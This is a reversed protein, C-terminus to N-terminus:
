RQPLRVCARAAELVTDAILQHGAENPHIGDLCMLSPYNRQALFTDRLDLLPCGEAQAVQRLAITYREQWRYIAAPEGLASLVADQNLGRTVWAFYRDGHLPPPTVLLPHMGRRRISRVFATLAQSFDPLSVKPRLPMNPSQAVQTWELDCDNGGYELAVLANDAGPAAAFDALGEVVTKGMLSHNRIPLAFAQELATTYRIPSIAYRGRGEQYIIGRTISDGWIHIESYM